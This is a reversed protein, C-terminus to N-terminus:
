GAALALERHDGDGAVATAAHRERLHIGVFIGAM